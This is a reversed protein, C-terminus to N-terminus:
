KRVVRLAGAGGDAVYVTGDPARYIGLPMEFSAASATGDASGVRGSGAWTQVRTSAADTGPAVRRIRQNASDAVLLGSGDWALGGQPLLRATTGPGDAFGPGGNVLTTVTHAADTGIVKLTASFSAIFFVRGDTARAVATPYLFSASAAPGDHEDGGHTVALTTVNRTSVDLVRIAHNYADAILIHTADMWALGMPNNFRAASGVGDANGRAFLTGAVTSVTRNADNAIKRIAANHTDAVYVNGAADTLVFTPQFFRAQLAPVNDYRPDGSPNGDGAFPTVGGAADVRWIRHARSDAM